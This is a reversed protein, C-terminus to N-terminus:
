YHILALKIIRFNLLTVTEDVISELYVPEHCANELKDEHNPPDDKDQNDNHKFVETAQLQDEISDQCQSVNHVQSM